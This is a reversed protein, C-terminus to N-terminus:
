VGFGRLQELTLMAEISNFIEKTKNFSKSTQGQNLIAILEKMDRENLGGMQGNHRILFNKFSLMPKSYGIGFFALDKRGPGKEVEYLQLAIQLKTWTVPNNTDPATWASASGPFYFVQYEEALIKLVADHKFRAAAVAPRLGSRDAQNLDVGSLALLRLVEIQGHRAAMTAPTFGYADTQNLSVGNEVLAVLSNVDGNKAAETAQSIAYRNVPHSVTGGPNMRRNIILSFPFIGVHANGIQHVDSHELNLPDQFRNLINDFGILHSAQDIGPSLRSQTYGAGGRVYRNEIGFASFSRPNTVASYRRQNDQNRGTGAAANLLALAEVHNFQAAYDAPTGGQGDPQNLNVGLRQLELLVEAHGYCAAMTAPTHGQANVQSLDVRGALQQLIKIGSYEIAMALLKNDLEIRRGLDPSVVRSNKIHNLRDIFGKSVNSQNAINLIKIGCPVHNKDANKNTFLGQLLISAIESVNSTSLPPWQNIDMLSWLGDQANYFIGITHFPSSFKLVLNQGPIEKQQTIQIQRLYDALLHNDSRDCIILDAYAIKVGNVHATQVYQPRQLTRLKDMLNLVNQYIREDPSLVMGNRIKQRTQEISTLLRNSQSEQIIKNILFIFDDQSGEVMHNFWTMTTAECFGGFNESYLVNAFNILKTNASPM